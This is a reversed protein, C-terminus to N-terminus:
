VVFDVSEQGFIDSRKGRSGLDLEWKSVIQQRKVMKGCWQSEALFFGLYSGSTAGGVQVCEELDM